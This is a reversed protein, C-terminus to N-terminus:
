PAHRAAWAFHRVLDEAWPSVADLLPQPHLGVVLALAVLPALCALERLDLDPFREQEPHRLPGTCIRRYAWLLYAACLVTGLCAALGMLKLSAGAQVAGLVALLEGPFGALGPLGASALCSFLLVGAFVPMPAALGGFGDVRRHHAREYLVGVLLFLLASGIGHGVMQLAAGTLGAVTGSALGLLCYGMHSVSAYAVLRKLDGQVLAVWAAVLIAGVGILGTWWAAQIAVLPFCPWAIRLLGYVGLKLLVAALVVSIATPAQVHAHPLWTHLGLVPVKVAFALAFGCFALLALPIGLFRQAQWHPWLLRLHAIAFSRPVLVAFRGSARGEQLRELRLGDVLRLGQDRRELVPLRDLLALPLPAAQYIGAILRGAEGHLTSAESYTGSEPLAIVGRGAVEAPDVEVLVGTAPVAAPLLVLCGLMALSGALTFLAYKVAAYLRSEAGWLAILLYMPLLMLEWAVYFLVLDQAVFVGNVGAFLTLLLAHFSRSREQVPAGALVAIPQIVGSLALLLASLGDIGVHWALGWTPVLACRQEWLLGGDPLGGLALFAAVALALGALSAIFALLRVWRAPALLLVLASLLPILIFAAAM